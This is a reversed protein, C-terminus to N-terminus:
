TVGPLAFAAVIRARNTPDVRHEVVRGHGDRARLAHILSLGGHRYDGLIGLHCPDAEFRTAVIDGPQVAEIDIRSMLGGCRDLLTGDPQASYNSIDFDAPVAGVARAVVIVLGACDVGVARNRAQHQYPVGLWTRAESVIAARAIM